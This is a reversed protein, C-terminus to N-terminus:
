CRNGSRTGQGVGRRQCHAHNGSSLERRVCGEVFKSDMLKPLMVDLLILDPNVSKAMALGSEGDM